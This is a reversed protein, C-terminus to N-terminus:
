CWNKYFQTGGRVGNCAYADTLDDGYDTWSMMYNQLEEILEDPCQFLVKRIRRSMGKRTCDPNVAGIDDFLLSVEETLAGWAEKGAQYHADCCNGATTM